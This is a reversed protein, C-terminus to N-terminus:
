CIRCLCLELRLTLVVKFRHCGFLWVRPRSVDFYNLKGYKNLAAKLSAADVKEVVGKVYASANGKDGPGASVSGPQQRAQKRAHEQGATQWGGPSTLADEASAATTTVPAPTPQPNSNPQSPSVTAAPIQPVAPAPARPGAVMSAWTKPAAPKPPAAPEDAPTPASVQPEEASKPSPAITPEPDKPTESLVSDEAAAAEAKEFSEPEPEIEAPKEAEVNVPEPQAAPVEENAPAAVAAPEVEPHAATEELKKDLVEADKEQAAGDDASSLTHPEPEQVPAPVDEAQPMHEEVEEEEEDAIYRFIDNLVYYGNPQEALIFTQVFKRHPASKNSMEGIVQVVIDRGSEQSDVNTVRVKCDQIDLEKIRESIAQLRKLVACM